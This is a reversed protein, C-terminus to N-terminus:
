NERFHKKKTAQAKSDSEIEDDDAAEKHEIEAHKNRLKANNEAKENLKTQNM